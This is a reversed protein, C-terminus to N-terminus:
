GAIEIHVHPLGALNSEDFMCLHFRGCLVRLYLIFVPEWEPRLDFIRLDVAYGRAHKSGPSHVGDTGSTVVLLQDFLNMHVLGAVRLFSKLADNVGDMKVDADRLEVGAPPLWSTNPAQPNTSV